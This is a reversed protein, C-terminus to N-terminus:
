EALASGATSSRTGQSTLPTVAPPLWPGTTFLQRLADLKDIGWKAATSLSSQVIAFQALGDLTRRAGGPGRMTLGPWPLGGFRPIRGGLRWRATGRFGNRALRWRAV